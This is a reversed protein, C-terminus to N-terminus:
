LSPSSSAKLVTRTQRASELLLSLGTRGGAGVQEQALLAIGALCDVWARHGEYFFGQWTLLSSLALIDAGLDKWDVEKMSCAWPKAEFAPVLQECMPRDFSANHAIILGTSALESDLVTTDFQQDKVMEDTIGTLRTVVGPIPVGPDILSSITEGVGHIVGDGDYYFPISGFEIVKDSAVDLGTTEVDVFLGKFLGGPVHSMSSPLALRRLVRFESSQELAKTAELKDPPDSFFKLM